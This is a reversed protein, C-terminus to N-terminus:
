TGRIRGEFIKTTVSGNTGTFRFKVAYWGATPFAVVPATWLINYGAETRDDNTDDDFTTDNTVVAALVLDDLDIEGQAPTPKYVQTCTISGGTPKVSVDVRSVNARTALAGTILRVLHRLVITDGARGVFPIPYSSDIM